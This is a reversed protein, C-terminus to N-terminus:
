SPARLYLTLRLLASVGIDLSSQRTFGVSELSLSPHDQLIKAVFRRLRPYSGKIPLVIDYRLLKGEQASALQYEGRELVLGQQQATEYIGNLVEGIAEEGSFFRYFETLQLATDRNDTTTRRVAQRSNRFHEIEARIEVVSAHMPTLAVEYFLASALAVVIAAVGSWGVIRLLRRMQWLLFGSM